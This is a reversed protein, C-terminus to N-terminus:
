WNARLLPEKRLSAMPHKGITTYCLTKASKVTRAKLLYVVVYEVYERYYAM